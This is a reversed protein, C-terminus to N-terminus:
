LIWNPHEKARHEVAEKLWEGLGKEMYFKPFLLDDDSRIVNEKVSTEALPTNPYIRIGRTIIMSELNLEDAFDLSKNVTDKTEGPGGLLLFGMRSIGHKKALASTRRVNEISFKKNMNKLIKDSGSEFGISVGICGALAMKEILNEDIEIPYITSFWKIKLGQTIIRSCLEEAYSQPFNFTNDVFIFRSYGARVYKGLAEMVHDIKQKRAIRGEIVTNPCYSCNMPCGRRTQFPIWAGKDELASSPIWPHDSPSPITCEDLNKTIAPKKILGTRRLYLGSVDLAEANTKIQDLLDVFANEGQGQIGMDADLYELISQPYLTYGGGGLVVPADSQKRCDQVIHKVADLLFKPKDIAQNDVNRVSIGIIDPNFDKIASGLLTLRDHEDMLNIFKVEHGAKQTATAIFALGIPFVQM